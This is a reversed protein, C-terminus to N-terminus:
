GVQELVKNIPLAEFWSQISEIQEVTLALMPMREHRSFHGRLELAARIMLHWGYVSVGKRFFPM